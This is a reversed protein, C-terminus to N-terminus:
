DVLYLNKHAIIIKCVVQLYTLYCVRIPWNASTYTYPIPVVLWQKCAAVNVHNLKPNRICNRLLPSDDYMVDEEDNYFLSSPDVINGNDMGEKTSLYLRDSGQLLVRELRSQM